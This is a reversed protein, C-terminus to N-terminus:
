GMITPSCLAGEYMDRKIGRLIAAARLDVLPDNSLDEFLGRILERTVALYLSPTARLRLEELKSLLLGM